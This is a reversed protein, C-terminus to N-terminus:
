RIFRVRCRLGSPLKLSPNAIDVRVVFTSSAADVVRDVITVRGAYVGGLPAEPRVEAKMGKKAAGFRRAPVVVEVKLPDISALKFIPNEGVYDGPAM